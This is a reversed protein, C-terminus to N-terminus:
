DFRLSMKAMERWFSRLSNAWIKREMVLNTFLWSFLWFLMPEAPRWLFVLTEVGDLIQPIQLRPSSLSRITFAKLGSLVEFACSILLINVNDVTMCQKTCSGEDHTHTHTHILSYHDTSPWTTLALTLMNTTATIITAAWPNHKRKYPATTWESTINTLHQVLLFSLTWNITLVQGPLSLVKVFDAKDLVPCIPLGPCAEKKEKVKHQWKVCQIM